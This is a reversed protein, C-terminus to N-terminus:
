MFDHHLKLWTNQYMYIYVYKYLHIYCCTIFFTIFKFSLLSPYIPPDLPLFLFPFIIYNYDGFYYLFITKTIILNGKCSDRFIAMNGFNFGKWVNLFDQQRPSLYQHNNKKNKIDVFCSFHYAMPWM